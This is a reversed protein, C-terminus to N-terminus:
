ASQRWWWYSILAALGAMAAAAVVGSFIGLLEIIQYSGPFGLALYNYGVLGAAVIMLGIRTRSKEDPSILMYGLVAIGLVGPLALVLEGLGVSAEPPAPAPGVGAEPEPTQTPPEPTLTPEPTGTPVSTPTIVTVIGEQVKLKLIESVSAPESVAELNLIGLRDLTLLLTASGNATFSNLSSTAAEGLYSLIFQVPTGDPVPNGNHDFILGTVVEVADGVAYGQPEAEGLEAGVISLTIKQNPDPSTAEILDYAVGPVSVPSSGRASLEQFLLKAAVDVFSRTKGYLAYYVDIKSIDTASLDYPVDMAFVVVRKNRVLDPRNDLLQRLASSGYTGPSEKLTVFVLWDAPRIIEEVEEPPLLPVTPASQPDEGLFWALDAMSMSTSNWAGVQGAASTGYLDLITDELETLGVHQFSECTNCQEHNRVDTIFVM